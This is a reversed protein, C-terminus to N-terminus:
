FHAGRRAWAGHRQHSWPHKALGCDHGVVLTWAGILEADLSHEAVGSDFPVQPAIPSDYQEWVPAADAAGSDIRGSVQITAASQESASNQVYFWVQWHPARM